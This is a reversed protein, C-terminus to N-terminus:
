DFLIKKKKYNIIAITEKEHIIIQLTSPYIRKFEVFDILKNKSFIKNIKKKNLVILNTGILQDYMIHKIEKENLYKLNKIEIEKIKFFQLEIQLKNPNFTSLFIILLLSSLIVSFKKM